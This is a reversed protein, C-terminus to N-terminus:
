VVRGDVRCRLYALAQREQLVPSLVCAPDDRATRSAPQVLALSIAHDAIHEGVVSYRSENAPHADSM